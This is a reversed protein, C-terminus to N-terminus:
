LLDINTIFILHSDALKGPLVGAEHVNLLLYGGFLDTYRVKDCTLFIRNISCPAYFPSPLPDLIGISYLDHL